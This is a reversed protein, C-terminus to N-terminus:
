FVCSKLSISKVFDSFLLTLHWCWPKITQFPSWTEPLRQRKSATSNRYMVIHTCHVHTNVLHQCPELPIIQMSVSVWVSYSITVAHLTRGSALPSNAAWPEISVVPGLGTFIGLFPQALIFSWLQDQLQALICNPVNKNVILNGRM